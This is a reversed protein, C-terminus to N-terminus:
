LLLFAFPNEDGLIGPSENKYRQGGIRVVKLIFVLAIFIVVTPILTKSNM